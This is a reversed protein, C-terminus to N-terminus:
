RSGGFHWLAFTTSLVIAAPALATAIAPLGATVGFNTFMQQFMQFALGALAALALREGFLRRQGTQVVIALALGVMLVIYIPASARRLWAIEYALTNLNQQRLGHLTQGLERMSLEEPRLWLARLQSPALHVDWSQQSAQSTRLGQPTIWSERTNHLTWEQSGGQSNDEGKSDRLSASEARIVRQLTHAEGLELVLLSSLSGDPHVAGVQIVQSGERIWGGAPTNLMRGHSLALARRSRAVQSLPAAVWEGFPMGAVGILAAAVLVTLAFRRPSIGAAHVAVIEHAQLMQGLALIAGLLASAPFLGYAESALNLAVYVFAAGIGYHPPQTARLEETLTIVSFVTVLAALAYLFNLALLKAVYRDLTSM